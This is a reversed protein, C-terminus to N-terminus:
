KVKEGIERDEFTRKGNVISTVYTNILGISEPTREGTLEITYMNNVEGVIVADRSITPCSITYFGKGQLKPPNCEHTKSYEEALTTADKTETNKTYVFKVRSKPQPQTKKNVPSTYEISNNEIKVDWSEPVPPFYAMQTNALALSSVSALSVIQLLKFLRSNIM